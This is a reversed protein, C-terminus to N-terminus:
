APSRGPSNVRGPAGKWPALRPTAAHPPTLHRVGTTRRGHETGESACGDPVAAGRADAAYDPREGLDGRGAGTHGHGSADTHPSPANRM